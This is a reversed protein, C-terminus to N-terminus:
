VARRMQAVSLHRTLTGRPETRTQLCPASVKLKDDGFLRETAGLRWVTLLASHAWTDSLRYRESCLPRYCNAFDNLTILAAINDDSTSSMASCHVDMRQSYPKGATLAIHTISRSYLTTQRTATPTMTTKARSTQESCYTTSLKYSNINYIM